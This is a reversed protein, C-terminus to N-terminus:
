WMIGNWSFCCTNCEDLGCVTYAPNTPAVGQWWQGNWSFCTGCNDCKNLGCVTYVPASPAEGYWMQGNWSFCEYGGKGYDSM